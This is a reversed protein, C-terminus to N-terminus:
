AYVTVGYTAADIIAVPNITLTAANQGAIVVSNKTWVYNVYNGSGGLPTATLVLSQGACVPSNSGVSVTPRSNVSVSTSAGGDSKCGKSDTVTVSYSGTNNLVANPITPNQGAGAYANPGTWAFTTYTGSGGSPTSSLNLATGECVPTNSGATITPNPNVTVTVEATGTCQTPNTTDYGVVIIKDGNALTAPSIYINNTSRAQVPTSAITNRFFEYENAGGATFTVNATGACFETTPVASITSQLTITPNSYIDLVPFGNMLIPCTPGATARTAKVSYTGSSNNLGDNDVVWDAFNGSVGNYSFQHNIGDLLLEYSYNTETNALTVKASNGFCLKNVDITFDYVTATKYVLTLDSVLPTM